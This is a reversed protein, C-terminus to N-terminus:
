LRDYAHIDSNGYRRAHGPTSKTVVSHGLLKVVSGVEPTTREFSPTLIFLGAQSLGETQCSIAEESVAGDRIVSVDM